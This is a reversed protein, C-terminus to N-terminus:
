LMKRVTRGLSGLAACWGTLLCCIVVAAFSYWHHGCHFFLWGNVIASLGNTITGLNFIKM